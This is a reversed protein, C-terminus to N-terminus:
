GAAVMVEDVALADLVANRSPEILDAALRTCGERTRAQVMGPSVLVAVAAEAFTPCAVRQAVTGCSCSAM